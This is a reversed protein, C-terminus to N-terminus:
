SPDTYSLGAYLPVEGPLGGDSLVGDSLAGYALDGYPADTEREPRLATV